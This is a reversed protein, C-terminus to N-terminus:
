RDVKQKLQSLQNLAELPTLRDIDIDAIAQALTDRSADITVNEVLPKVTTKGDMEKLLRFARTILENPLGALKAVEIGYSRDGVKEEIRHTFVVEHDKEIVGVSLCFAGDKQQGLETLEHFHTAFITRCCVKDHLWEAIATAIALGDTTATGRGIEDILVLSRKTARTVITAAERMEVMFTSDGRTLDDAAGIRTFIRDVIGLECSKAPVFSGTQALLQILGVQRLYTSKGGMNPGTLIAFRRDKGNLYTDNPVFNHEGVVQEVVSHRGSKIILEIDQRMVPRCYNHRRALEAFASLVDLLSLKRSMEQIRTAQLSIWARLENFLEREREIQRGRASLISVEFDKLAKTVFREANVLTQKREYDAPIKALHTKTVEIFYGFVSNYKVKLGSIGTREREEQELRALMSQGDRRIHRFKDVEEDFGDRILDGENAKAPPDDVIAAKVREYVDALPDFGAVVDQLAGVTNAGLVALIAPLKELSEGLAKAERPTARPTGIRTILRDLDRVAPLAERVATLVSANKILYEVADHRSTIEKLDTSPALIWELFLRYGMPTQTYDIHSVLSHKKDGGILTETLELNRRTASDIFVANAHEGISIQSLKPLTGCSIEEVYGLLVQTTALGLASLPSLEVPTEDVFPKITRAVEAASIKAFPRYLTAAGLQEITKRIDRYHRDTKELPVSFVTSPIIVEAPRFRRLTEVLEEIGATESVILRGTSVDVVSAAGAGHKDFCLAALFNFAKEDLGDGQYRVGPTVIRSIERGVMGKKGPEEETQAVVVCSVGADLLKPLYNEIAHIPVGCMPVPNLQDKHRATLRIQLIEAVRSADDFFIEYFDGVQFLVVKDPFQSKTKLYAKLMPAMNADQEGVRIDRVKDDATVAQETPVSTPKEGLLSGFSLQAQSTDSM